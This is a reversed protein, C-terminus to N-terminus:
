EVEPPTKKKCLAGWNKLLVYLCLLCSIILILSVFVFVFTMDASETMVFHEAEHVLSEHEKGGLKEFDLLNRVPCENTIFGLTQISSTERDVM